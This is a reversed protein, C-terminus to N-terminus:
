GYEFNGSQVVKGQPDTITFEPKPPRGGDVLLMTCKEGASGLLSMQLQAQRNDGGGMYFAAVSPTYPPGFPMAVTEGAVVHIPKYAPGAQASVMTYSYRAAPRQVDPVGQVAPVSKEAPPGKKAEDKKEAAPKPRGTMDLTYSHLWWKGAPLAIPTDKDGHISLVAQESYITGRFGDCPITVNGL